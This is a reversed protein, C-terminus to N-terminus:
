PGVPNDWWDKKLRCLLVPLAIIILQFLVGRVLPSSFKKEDPMTESRVHSVGPAM